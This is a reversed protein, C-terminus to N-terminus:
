PVLHVRFTRPVGLTCTTSACVDLQVQLEQGEVLPAGVTSYGPDRSGHSEQAITGFSVPVRWFSATNPCFNHEVATDPIQVPRGLGLLRGNWVTTNQRQGDITLFMISGPDVYETSGVLLTTTQFPQGVADTRNTVVLTQPDTTGLANLVKTTAVNECQAPMEGPIPGLCGTAFRLFALFFVTILNKKM